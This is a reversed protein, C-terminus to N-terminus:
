PRVERIRTIAPHRSANRELAHRAEAVRVSGVSTCGSLNHRVWIGRGPGSERIWVLLGPACGLM